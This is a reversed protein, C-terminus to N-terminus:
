WEVDTHEWEKVEKLSEVGHKQGYEKIQKAVQKCITQKKNM